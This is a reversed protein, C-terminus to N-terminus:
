RDVDSFESWDFKLIRREIKSLSSYHMKATLMPFNPSRLSGILDLIRREMKSLSTMFSLSVTATLLSWPETIKDAVEISSCVRKTILMFRM